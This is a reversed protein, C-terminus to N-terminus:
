HTTDNKESEQNKFYEYCKELGDEGFCNFVAQKWAHHGKIHSVCVNAEKVAEKLERSKKALAQLLENTQKIENVLAKPLESRIKELIKYCDKFEEILDYGENIMLTLKM